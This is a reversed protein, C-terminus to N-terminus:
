RRNLIADSRGDPSSYVGRMTNAGTMRLEFSRRGSRNTFHIVDGEVRGEWPMVGPKIAFSNGNGFSRIRNGWVYEAGVGADPAIREIVFGICMALESGNTGPIWTEGEWVGSFGRVAAPADAAPPTVTYEVRQGCITATEARGATPQLFLACAAIPITWRAIFLM